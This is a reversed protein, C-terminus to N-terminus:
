TIFQNAQGLKVTLLRELDWDKKYTIRTCSSYRYLGLLNDHTCLKHEGYM